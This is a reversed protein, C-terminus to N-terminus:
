RKRKAAKKKPKVVQEYAERVLEPLEDTAIHDLLLRSWRISGWIEPKFADPRTDFLVEQHMPSLKFIAEKKRDGIQIFIRGGFRFSPSGFHSKEEVDPLALALKRIEVAANM